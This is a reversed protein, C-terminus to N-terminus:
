IDPLLKKEKNYVVYINVITVACSIGMAIGNTQQFHLEGFM